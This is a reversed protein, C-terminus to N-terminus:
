PDLLIDEEELVTDELNKQQEQEWGGGLAKYLYVLDLLTTTNSDLLSQEAQNLQRETDLFDLLNVLGKRNRETSLMVLQKYHFTEDKREYVTKLDQTYAIVASEAEELAILVTQQYSYASAAADAKKARLNGVLKGGQFIPLNMDGGLAWTRSGVTFLNKIMLSQVGGDGILTFTPFFSAMAIGVNATAVALDREAKRVDPRRRLLDSRLGVTVTAPPQPLPQFPLLEDVLTEPAGGTLASLTYINRYIEAEINPLLARESALDARINEDDLRSKYGAEFQKKILVSKKELLFINEEILQRKKQFSRLEIYNRAIEAMVSILTDNREEIMSGIMANAAQVTRKTKGFLDIEWSLDFLANYLSQIQPIQIDFPLGTSTSVSGPVSGTSPGIAFLPGNKSFYTKTANVDAGIQPFFSSAAIQRLARSELIHATAALVDNNYVEAMSIYKTLLPDQFVEWWQAPPSQTSVVEKNEESTWTNDVTNEPAKYNPGVVCGSLVALSFFWISKFNM